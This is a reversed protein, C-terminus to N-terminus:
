QSGADQLIVKIVEPLDNYSISGQKVSYDFASDSCRVGVELDASSTRNLKEIPTDCWMQRFGKIGDVDQEDIKIVNYEGTREPFYYFIARFNKEIKIEYSSTEAVNRIKIIEDGRMVITDGLAPVSPASPKIVILIVFLILPIIFLLILLTHWQLNTKQLNM